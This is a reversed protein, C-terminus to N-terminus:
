HWESVFFLIEPRHIEKMVVRDIEVQICAVCNANIGMSLAKIVLELHRESMRSRPTTQIDLKWINRDIETTTIKEEVIRRKVRKKRHEVIKKITITEVLYYEEDLVCIHKLQTVKTGNIPCVQVHEISPIAERIIKALYSDTFVAMFKTYDDM